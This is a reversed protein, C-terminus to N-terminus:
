WEKKFEKMALILVQPLKELSMDNLIDFIHISLMLINSQIRYTTSKKYNPM